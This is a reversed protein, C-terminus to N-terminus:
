FLVVDKRFSGYMRELLAMCKRMHGDMWGDIQRRMHGDMWRSGLFTGFLGIDGEFSGQIGEL